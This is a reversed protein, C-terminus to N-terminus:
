IWPPGGKIILLVSACFPTSIIKLPFCRAEKQYGIRRYVKGNKACVCTKEMSEGSVGGWFARTYCLMAEEKPIAM